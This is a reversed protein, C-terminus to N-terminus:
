NFMEFARKELDELERKYYKIQGEINNKQSTIWRETAMEKLKAFSHKVDAWKGILYKGSDYFTIHKEACGAELAEQKTAWEVDKLAPNIDRGYSYQRFKGALGIVAPDKTKEDYWVEIKPFYNEKKCLSVLGLIEVPIPMLAYEEVDVRAPCLTEFTSVLSRNMSLFPIPSKDPAILRAQGKLGLEAVHQNWKELKENDYILEQTEEVIFTEVVTKMERSNSNSIQEKM